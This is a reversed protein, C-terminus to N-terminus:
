LLVQEPDPTVHARRSQKQRFLGGDLKRNLSPRPTLPSRPVTDRPGASRRARCSSGPPARTDGHEFDQQRSKGRTVPEGIDNVPSSADWCNLRVTRRSGPNLSIPAHLAKYVTVHRGSTNNRSHSEWWCPSPGGWVRGPVPSVPRARM